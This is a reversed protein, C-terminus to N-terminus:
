HPTPRASREREQDDGHLAARTLAEAVREYEDAMKLLADKSEVSSLTNARARVEVARQWYYDARENVIAVM